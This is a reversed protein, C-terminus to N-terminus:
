EEMVVTVNIVVGTPNTTWTPTTWHVGFYDGAVVAISLGTNSFGTLGANNTVATSVNTSTTKNLRFAVTSTESTGIATTQTFTIYIATITGGRGFYVGPASGDTTGPTSNACYYQTADAPSFANCHLVILHRATPAVWTRAAEAPSALLIVLVAIIIPM